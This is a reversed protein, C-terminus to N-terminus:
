VNNEENNLLGNAGIDYITNHEKGSDYYFGFLKKWKIVALAANLANLEAIQINKDYDNDVAAAFPVWSSIHDKKRSTATTVRLNGILVDGAVSVGMGVDVFPVGKGLLGEMIVKKAAGDDVCIFVFDLLLLEAVNSTDVYSDHPVIKRHMRSYAEYHYAVKRPHERLKEISVAGPSRFANHSGFDDADYLHIEKVPCKSVLDLVYAGTGGLGVVGIRLGALKSSIHNIGAGGSNTDLYNFVSEDEHPEMVRFSRATVRNDMSEAHNSIVRVYSTMKEYYDKFGTGGPPKNSFSHHVEMGGFTNKQSGHQIGSLSAGNKDCPFEGSFYIVHTRPPITNDGTLDLPAVLAGYSIEKKSNIYPVHHLLLHADVIAVEYGEDRLRRLDPNLSILKHSM